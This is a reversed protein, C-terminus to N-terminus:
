QAGTPLAGTRLAKLLSSRLRRPQWADDNASSVALSSAQAGTRAKMLSSRLRGPQLADENASSVALPSAQAGTRLAEYSQLAVTGTADDNASSVALSSA